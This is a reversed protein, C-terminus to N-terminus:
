LKIAKMVDKIIACYSDMNVNVEIYYPPEGDRSKFAVHVIEHDDLTCGIVCERTQSLLVGLNHVFLRRDELAAERDYYAAKSESALDM